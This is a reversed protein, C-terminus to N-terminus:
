IFPLKHKDMPCTISILKLSISLYVEYVLSLVDPSNQRFFFFYIFKTYYIM